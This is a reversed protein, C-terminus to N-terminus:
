CSPKLVLAKTLAAWEHAFQCLWAPIGQPSFGVELIQNRCCRGIRLRARSAQTTPLVVIVDSLEPVNLDPDVFLM